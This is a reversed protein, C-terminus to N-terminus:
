DLIGFQELLGLRDAETWIEAIQGDELHFISMSSLEFEEGTPKIGFLEAEHTGHLTFRAVAWNEGGFSEEVAYTLDPVADFLGFDHDAFKKVGTVTGNPGHHSVDDTHLKKSKQM